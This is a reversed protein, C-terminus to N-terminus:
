LMEASTSVFERPVLMPWYSLVESARARGPTLTTKGPPGHFVTSLEVVARQLDPKSHSRAAFRLVVESPEGVQTRPTRREHVAGMGIFDWRIEDLDLNLRDIRKTLIEKAKEARGPANPASYLFLSNASYGDAYCASVKLAAPRARGTVGDVEVLDTGAQRVSLTTLDVTVDPTLYARPDGIEYLLQEITTQEDVLGGSGPTKGLLIRGAEDVEVIPFGIDAMNPVDEWGAQHNGGTDHAGCEILHGAVIGAALLDWEDHKWGFAHRLAGLTLSPDAVRGAVIVNAGDHLADVISECGVYANASLLRSPLEDYPQGTEMSSLDVGAARMEDLRPLLDDGTIAAVRVRDGLGLEDALDRVAQACGAPNMGGANCVIAVDREIADALCDRLIPIIDTAYGRSPDREMQKRLISMTVEALFDMVLYDIDGERVLRGPARTDDGWYGLGGGIRVTKKEDGM